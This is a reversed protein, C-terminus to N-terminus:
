IPEDYEKLVQNFIKQKTAYSRNHNIGYDSHDNWDIAMGEVGFYAYQEPSAINGFYRHSAYRYDEYLSQPLKRLEEISDLNTGQYRIVDFLSM